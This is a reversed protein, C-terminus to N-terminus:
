QFLVIWDSPRHKTEAAVSAALPAFRPDILSAIGYSDVANSRDWAHPAYEAQGAAARQRDFEIKSNAFEIHTQTGAAFPALWDLSHPLSAGGPTAWSYWDQGHQKAALAAMMLPDLDYTVYHLADREDFDFTSGDPHLNAAVQKQYATRARAILVPDGTQFAAMAALKVRHSQWNTNGHGPGTDMADLYGSAMRWWFGDIRERMAPPLDAATLDYAMILTDFGTEDIPNFSLQYISAWADLYAGAQDLFAREGTLRWAIALDLVIPQDRKAALSIDRIGHGPLTGETHLKPIAGPPRGLASRARAITAKGAPSDVKGKAFDPGLLAYGAAPAPYVIAPPTDIPMVLEV